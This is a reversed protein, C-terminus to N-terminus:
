EKATIERFAWMHVKASGGSVCENFRNWFPSDGTQRITKIKRYQEMDEVSFEEVFLGAQDAGEYARFRKGGWAELEQKLEPVLGLFVDRKDDEVRYEVLVTIAM